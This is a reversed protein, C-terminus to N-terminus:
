CTVGDLVRATLLNCRDITDDIDRTGAVTETIMAGLENQLEPYNRHRPRVYASELTARTARFFDWAIENTRGSDWAIANGPQGGGDFYVGEQVPASALWFAHDIAAQANMTRASVAVGAGGLLSGRMGHSGAPIGSYALRHQRFGRRSYNTYGFLLPSYAFREGDTLLDAVQIPNLSLNDPPVAAALRRLLELAARGDERTLFVDPESFAPAGHSAAVTLLSSYADVPKGPWLVRGEDALAFVDDWTCPPADILDPRWAAVQAAADSALGWQRGLHQYSRHSPGVSLENLVDLEDDHGAGDLPLLFGDEAAFPIHPHDIVLLDVGDVLQDLGKDGFDLLSRYQWIVEVDPRVRRYAEAAAVVSGYGREHEWTTGHLVTTM